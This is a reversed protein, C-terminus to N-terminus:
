QMTEQVGEAKVRPKVDEDVTKVPATERLISVVGASAETKIPPSYAPLPAVDVIAETKVDAAKEAEDCAPADGIASSQQAALSAAVAPPVQAPPSAALFAAVDLELWDTPAHM